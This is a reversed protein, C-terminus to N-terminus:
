GGPHPPQGGPSPSRGGPRAALGPFAPPHKGRFAAVGEAFDPQAVAARMLRDADAVAADLAETAHRYVQAKIGAMAAPSVTGAITRAYAVATELATGPACVQQVLGMRQAEEALVVRSSLLLDLANGLGVARPLLWSIGHEAILGVKAFATTIKADAAAIRVDCAMAHVLGLGACPGNIAAVVPKPVSLPFIMPRVAQAAPLAADGEGLDALFGMDAGACFARGAGTVVVVRVSDDAACDALHDFYRETMEGTWGNLREPRNFTLVAVGGSDTRLVVDDDAV